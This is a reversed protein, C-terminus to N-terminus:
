TMSVLKRSGSPRSTAVWRVVATCVWAHGIRQLRSVLGRRRVPDLAPFGTGYRKRAGADLQRLQAAWRAAPSPGTRRVEATGYGHLLEAGARYGALWREFDGVVRGVGAEGLEAPLVAGGLALLAARELSSAEKAVARRPLALAPFSAALVQLLTRRPLAPCPDRPM